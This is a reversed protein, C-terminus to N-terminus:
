CYYVKAPPFIEGYGKKRNEDSMEKFTKIGNHIGWTNGETGGSTIYGYGSKKDIDFQDFFLDILKEEWVSEEMLLKEDQMRIKDIEEKTKGEGVLKNYEKAARLRLLMKELTQKESRIMHRLEKMIAAQDESQRYGQDEVVGLLYNSKTLIDERM